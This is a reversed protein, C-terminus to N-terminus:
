NLFTRQFRSLLLVQISNSTLAMLHLNSTPHHIKLSQLTMSYILRCWKKRKRLMLNLSVRVVQREAIQHEKFAEQRLTGTIPIEPSGEKNLVIVEMVIMLKSNEAWERRMRVERSGM